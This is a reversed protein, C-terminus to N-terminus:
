VHAQILCLPRTAGMSPVGCICRGDELEAILKLNYSYDKLIIPHLSSLVDDNGIASPTSRENMGSTLCARRLAM